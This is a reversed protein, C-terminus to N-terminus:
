SPASRLFASGIPTLRSATAMSVRLRTPEVPRDLSTIKGHRYPVTHMHIAVDTAIAAFHGAMAAAVSSSIDSAPFCHKYM